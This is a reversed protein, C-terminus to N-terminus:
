EEQVNMDLLIDEPTVAHINIEQPANVGLLKCRLEINKHAQALMAPNEAGVNQALNAVIIEFLRDLRNLEIDRYHEALQKNEAQIAKLEKHVHMFAAQRSIGLEDGIAQYTKGAIRLQFSRKRNDEGQAEQGRAM